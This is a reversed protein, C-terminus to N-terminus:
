PHETAGQGRPQLYPQVRTHAAQISRRSAIPKQVLCPRHNACGLSHQHRDRGRLDHVQQLGTRHAPLPDISREREKPGRRVLGHEGEDQAVAPRFVARDKGSSRRGVWPGVVCQDVRVTLM